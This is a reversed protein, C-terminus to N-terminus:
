KTDGPADTIELRADDLARLFRDVDKRAFKAANIRARGEGVHAPTTAGVACEAVLLEAYRATLAARHRTYRMADTEADTEAFLSLLSDM